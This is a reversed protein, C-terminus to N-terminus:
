PLKCAVRDAFFPNGSWYESKVNTHKDLACTASGGIVEWPAKKDLEIRVFDEPDLSTVSVSKVPKPLEFRLTYVLNRPERRPKSSPRQPETAGKADSGQGKMPGGPTDSVPAWDEPVFIAPNAIRASFTASKPRFDKDGTNLWTLFGLTKLEAMALEALAKVEKASLQGDRNEDASLIELESAMPDFRWEVEVHTFAGDKAVFRTVQGILVHPHALAPATLLAMWLSALLARMTM